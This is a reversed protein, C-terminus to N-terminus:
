KRESQLKIFFPRYPSLTDKYAKTVGNGTLTAGAMGDVASVAKPAKGIVEAVKGRVVTIGIASKAYDTAGSADPQFIKKGPFLSQWPTEAINAGLGPTEKQEYWSIGIVTNGDTKLAIYGYIYDWLGFGSVPIIYGEVKQTTNGPNSLLEYILKLPLNAYGKKKNKAIYTDLDIKKQAFTHLNGQDDVLFPETRARVVDLIEAKTPPHDMVGEALTGNGVYKAPKYKGDVEIQFSQTDNNYIKAAVLMEKSRDLEKAEEQPEKLAAALVSLIFACIFSLTMMFIITKQDSFTRNSQQVPLDGIALQSM